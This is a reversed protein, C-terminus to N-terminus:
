GSVEILRKLDDASISSSSRHVEDHCVNCLTILNSAENEGGDVHQEIHHLELLSRPDDDQTQSREWSCQRCKFEDRTLVEVRVPDPIRRDHRITQRDSELRYVGVPMSRDGSTRTVIPWGEETRLERVRRPWESAMKALYKLEEGTINRTVNERFYKLLKDKVSLSSTRIRNASNWRHATDRDQELSLLVYTDPKLQNANSVGISELDTADGNSIMEKIMKGSVLPWGQEVRLERLRRAYESIGAVVMLEDGHILTSSYAKLYALLREQASNPVEDPLLSCGLDSLKHNAPILAKVQERLHGSLLKQEFQELLEILQQRLQEPEGTRPSRPM